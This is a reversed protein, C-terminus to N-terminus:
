LAVQPCYPSQNKIVGFCIHVLKRMAAGLAAMKTKGKALLRNYLDMVDPNHRIAVIAPMYLKARYIAPGAKSLHPKKLVSTGSQHQTPILGVFAAAQPAADFRTGNRLLLSMWASLVPGIGPISELLQKDKKLHPHNNIHERIQKELCDKEQNLFTISRDYSEFVAGSTSESAQAKELRNKERQIDSEVADLRYLLSRLDQYEQPDPQWVRLKHKLAYQAIVSADHKDNKIKYGLGQSYHKIQAPNLVSVQCGANFFALAAAEHYPGTAEMVAHLQSPDCQAKKTCWEILNKFGQECNSVRKQLEKDPRSSCILVCDLKSKSVDIGVINM